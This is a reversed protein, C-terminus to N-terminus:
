RVKHGFPLVWRFLRIGPKKCWCDDQCDCRIVGLRETALGILAAAVWIAGVVSLARLLM